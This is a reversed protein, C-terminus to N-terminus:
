EQQFVLNYEYDDVDMLRQKVFPAQMGQNLMMSPKCPKRLEGTNIPEGFGEKAVARQTLVYYAIIIVVGLLVIKADM